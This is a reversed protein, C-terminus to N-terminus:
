WILQGYLIDRVFQLTILFIYFISFSQFTFLKFTFSIKTNDRQFLASHKIMSRGKKGPYKRTYHFRYIYYYFTGDSQIYM